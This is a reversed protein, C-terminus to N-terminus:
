HKGPQPTGSGGSGGSGITTTGLMMTGAVTGTVQVGAQREELARLADHVAQFQKQTPFGSPYTVRKPVFDKVQDYLSEPKKSFRKWYTESTALKELVPILKNVPVSAPERVSRHNELLREVQQRLEAGYRKSSERALKETRSAPVSKGSPSELGSLLSNSYDADYDSAASGSVVLPAITLDGNADRVAQWIAAEPISTYWTIYGGPLVERPKRVKGTFSYRGTEVEGPAYYQPTVFDSVQFGNVTYHVAQCPDCIELLYAVQGQPWSYDQASGVIAKSDASDAISEGMVRRTGQPDCVTELLEHSAALSWGQGGEILGIPQGNETIHFARATPALSGPPVIVLPVCGPPLEDLSLFASVVAPVGWIPTFDRTLQLQLAAAVGLITSRNVYRDEYIPVLALHIPIM